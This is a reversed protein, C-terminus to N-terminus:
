QQSTKLTMNVETSTVTHKIRKRYMNGNGSRFFGYITLNEGTSYGMSILEQNIDNVLVQYYVVDSMEVKERSDNGKIVLEKKGKKISFGRGIVTISVSRKNFLKINYKPFGSSNEEQFYVNGKQYSNTIVTWLSISVASFTLIALVVNVIVGIISWENSSLGLFM